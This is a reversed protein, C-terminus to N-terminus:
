PQSSSQIEAASEPYLERMAEALRRYLRESPIGRERLSARRFRQKLSQLLQKGQIRLAPDPIIGNYRELAKWADSIAEQDGSMYAYAYNQMVLGRRIVWYQKLNEVSFDAEYKQNVRTTAFGLTQAMLEAMHEPEHPSFEAMTGGGRYQEEGRSLRRAATSMSKFAIPLTREWVKWKDPNTDTAARWVQYPIGAVPGAIDVVARGLKASPDREQGTIDEIGPLVRGASISGSIDVDPVPIEFMNLIHLPGLGYYRSLGHMILDPTDTLENALERIDNRLDVRPDKMGMKEKSKTGVFDILDFINEAFPLGQMGGMLLLGLWVRMASGAGAGGFAIYSLGQMYQWFLFFVSKKGRMFAPRNWKAYEFMTTQVAERGLKFAEDKNVGSEKALNYAAVFVVERNYREAKQFLWAGAYSVKAIARGSQTEPILRQLVDQEALGALETARSEDVFGEKVARDLAARLETSMVEGDNKRIVMRTASAIASVAQGDSYRSALFPYAVMPVQTLNVAASKVNAGLYWLFGLARLHALDNKPNMLYDYQSQFYEVVIDAVRADGTANAASDRIVGLQENMDLHYDIRAIHNAVNMMYSSYVRLADQSYGGIGKRKTLHRLFSRGPAQKLYTERLVQKMQESVGAEADNAPTPIAAVLTEYLQPSMSGMFHFESDSLKGQRITFSTESHRKEVDQVASQLAAQSEFTEFYVVEGRETDKPGKYPKGEYTMDKKARITLTWPGFRMRPFYNRNSLQEMEKEIDQIRMWARMHDQMFAKRKDVTNAAEYKKWVLEGQHKSLHAQGQKTDSTRIAIVGLSKRFQAVASRFSGDMDAWLEKLATDNEMGLKKFVAAIEEPKLRRQKEDSEISMELLAQALKTQDRKGYSLWSNALIAPFDTLTRKRAWWQQVNELFEQTGPMEYQKSFQLPTMAWKNFRAGWVSKQSLIAANAADFNEQGMLSAMTVDDPGRYNNFFPSGDEGLNSPTVQGTMMKSIDRLLLMIDNDTWTINKKSWQRIKRRIQAVFRKWWSMQVIPNKPDIIAQEAVHAIYEEAERFLNIGNTGSEISKRMGEVDLGPPAAAIMSKMLNIVEDQTMMTNLGYHALTEHMYTQLLSKESFHNTPVIYITGPDKPDWWGRMESKFNHMKRITKGNERAILVVKPGFKFNSAFRTIIGQAKTAEMGTGAKSEEIQALSARPKRVSEDAQAELGLKDLEKQEEVTQPRTASQTVEGAAIALLNTYQDNEVENLTGEEAKLTLAELRNMQTDTLQDPENSEPAAPDQLVNEETAPRTIYSAPDIGLREQLTLIKKNLNELRRKPAAKLLGDTTRYNDSDTELDERMTFLRQLGPHLGALNQGLDSKPGETLYQPYSSAVELQEKTLNMKQAMETPSAEVAMMPDRQQITTMVGDMGVYQTTDLNYPEGVLAQESAELQVNEPIISELPPLAPDVVPITPQLEGLAATPLPTSDLGDEIVVAGQLDFSTPGSDPEGLEVNLVETTEDLQVDVGPPTGSDSPDREGDDVATRPKGIGAPIGLLGFVAAGSAANLLQSKEEDTLQGEFEKFARSLSINVIEQATETPIEVAAIGAGARAARRIFGREAAEGFMLQELRQIFKPSKKVLGIRKAVAFLPAFDLAAKGIGSGVVMANAPTHGSERAIQGSEGTQLGVDALFAAATGARRGAVASKTALQVTKGVTTGPIIMSALMPANEMLVEWAYIGADTLSHINEVQGVTPEYAESRKTFEDAKDYFSQAAINQDFGEAILGAFNSYDAGVTLAGRKLASSTVGPVETAIPEVPKPAANYPLRVMENGDPDRFVFDGSEPFLTRVRDTM